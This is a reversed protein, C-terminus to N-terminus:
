SHPTETTSSTTISAVSTNSTEEDEKEGSVVNLINDFDKAILERVSRLAVICGESAMGPHIISDGHILFGDRGFTNTGEMPTLRLCYPGHKPSDFPESIIYRGCPIPGVGKVDQMSPNNKGYGHGSYGIGVLGEGGDKFVRLIDGGLQEYTWSM